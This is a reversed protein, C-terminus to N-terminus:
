DSYEDSTQNDAKEPDHLLESSAVTKFGCVNQKETRTEYKPVDELNKISEMTTHPLKVLLDKNGIYYDTGKINVNLIVLPRFPDKDNVSNFNYLTNSLVIEQVSRKNKRSIYYRNYAYFSITIMICIFAFIISTNLFVPSGNWFDSFSM